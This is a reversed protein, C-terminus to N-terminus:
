SLVCVCGTCGCVFNHGFKRQGREEEKEDKGKEQDQSRTKTGKKEKQQHM